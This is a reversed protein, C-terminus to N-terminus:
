SNDRFWFSVGYSLVIRAAATIPHKEQCGTESPNQIPEAHQYQERTNDTTAMRREDEWANIKLAKFGGEV